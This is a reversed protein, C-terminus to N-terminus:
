KGEAYDFIRMQRRLAALAYRYRSAATNPSIELADGIEQLTLGVWLKLVVVERQESPLEALAAEVIETTEESEVESVFSRKSRMVSEDASYSEERKRARKSRRLYDLAAWRVCGYLHSELKEEAHVSKSKWFRLFGDHVVDEATAACGVFQKAFLLM